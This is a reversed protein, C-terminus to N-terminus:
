LKTIVRDPDTSLADLNSLQVKYTGIIIERIIGAPSTM